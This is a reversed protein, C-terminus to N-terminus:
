RQQAPAAPPPPPVAGPAAAAPPPPAGAGPPPPPAGAGPPPPPAGAGPPHPPPAGAGPPPPPAGAGPPPPPPAGPGHPPPPPAVERVTGSGDVLFRARLQGDDFRGQVLVPQGRTFSSADTRPAAVLTRGTADQVVFRDGYSEAVRGRVTVIGSSGALKAVPTAITPAMEISPRTLSVAGAGGAAGIGLLAAAAIAVRQRRGIRDTLPINM